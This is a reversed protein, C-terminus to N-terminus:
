QTGGFKQKQEAIEKSIEDSYEDMADAIMFMQEYAHGSLDAVMEQALSRICAAYMNQHTIWGWATGSEELAIGSSVRKARDLLNM